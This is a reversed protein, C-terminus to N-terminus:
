FYTVFKYYVLLYGPEVDGKWSETHVYFLHSGLLSADETTGSPVRKGM